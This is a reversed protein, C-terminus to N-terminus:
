KRANVVRVALLLCAFATFILPEPLIVKGKLLFHVCATISAVYALRHIAKWRKFGLRKTWGDTSTVALPLLLLWSLMGLAIFKRKLVDDIIEGFDIDRELVVYTSLHLTAYFFAFLGLMRRLQLPWTWGLLIKASTCALSLLLFVLAWWGLRNIIAEVPNVGLKSLAASVGLWVLPLLAASFTAVKLTRIRARTLM